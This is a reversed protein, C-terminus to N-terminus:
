SRRELTSALPRRRRPIRPTNSFRDMIVYLIFTCLATAAYWAIIYILDNM